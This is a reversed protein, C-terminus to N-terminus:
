KEKETIIIKMFIYFKSRSIFMGLIYMLLCVCWVGYLYLVYICLFWRHKRHKLGGGETDASWIYKSYSIFRFFFHLNIRHHGDQWIFVIVTQQKRIIYHLIFFTTYFYIVLFFPFYPWLFFFRYCCCWWVTHSYRAFSLICKTLFSKRLSNIGNKDFQLLFCVKQSRQSNHVRRM